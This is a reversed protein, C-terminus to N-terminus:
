SRSHRGPRTGTLGVTWVEGDLTVIYATRGVINM